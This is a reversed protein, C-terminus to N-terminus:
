STKDRLIGSRYITIAEWAYNILSYVMMAIPVIFFYPSLWILKEPLLFLAAFALALLVTTLKGYWKASVVYNKNFLFAGGAIMIAEKVLLVIPVWLPLRGVLCMMIATTVQFIKDTLPDLLKGVDSIQNFNRAIWGDLIDTAWIALFLIASLASSGQSRYIEAAMWPICALRVLTLINPITIQKKWNM